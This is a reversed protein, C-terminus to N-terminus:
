HRDSIVIEAQEWMKHPIIRYGAPAQPYNQPDVAKLDEETMEYNNLDKIKDKNEEHWKWKIQALKSQINYFQENLKEEEKTIIKGTELDFSLIDGSETEFDFVMQNGWPRRFGLRKKFVTYHSESASVNVPSKVIDLTSYQKLLQDNKYFAIALDEGNAERGRNWSGLQVVYIVPGALFGSLYIEPSYWDYSYLLRDKDPMVQFVQTKGKLGYAEAPISKAYFQGYDSAQVYVRNGKERDAFVPSALVIIMFGILFFQKM